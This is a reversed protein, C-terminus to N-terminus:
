SDSIAVKKLAERALEASELAEARTREAEKLLTEYEATAQDSELKSASYSDADLSEPEAQLPAAIALLSATIIALLSKKFM